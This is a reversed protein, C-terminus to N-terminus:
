FPSGPRVRRGPLATLVTFLAAAAQVLLLVDRLAAPYGVRVESAGAPLPVAVLHAWAPVVSAPRGDVTASWGTEDEAALVLLRGDPGASVHLAVDPLAADVPAIGPPNPAAPPQGDEAGRAGGLCTEGGLRCHARSAPEPALLVVPHGTLLVRLVPRGDSTVGAASVADPAATRLRDASGADPMVVFTVDAAALYGLAVRARGSGETLAARLQETRQAFGPV